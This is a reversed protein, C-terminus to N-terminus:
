LRILVSRFRAQQLRTKRRRREEARGLNYLGIGAACAISLPLWCDTVFAILQNM